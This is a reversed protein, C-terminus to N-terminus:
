CPFKTNGKITALVLKTSSAIVFMQSTLDLATVDYVSKLSGSIKIHRLLELRVDYVRIGQEFCTVWLQGGIVKLWNAALKVETDKKWKEPLTPPSQPPKQTSKPLLTATVDKLKTKKKKGSKKIADAVPVEM